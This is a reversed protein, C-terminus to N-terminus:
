VEVSFRFVAVEDYLEGVRLVTSPFNPHNPADPFGQTELCLGAYKEYVVGGRGNLSGDLFNGSYFQLGPQTTFVELTRGSSEEHLKCALTLPNASERLVYNHDYGGTFGLQDFPEYIRSGITAPKRFDMPTEAVQRIEGTPILDKSVPTFSDANIMLQHELIDGSGALNFYSHNTLNVITDKDTTARYEIRLENDDNVLYDVSVKLNGPYNEEGDKSLYSLCVGVSDAARRGEASWVTKDYGKNGGHLHNAGNNQALQHAVGNLSFKGNAIRNAHRGILGGFFRPNRVYEDLTDYGLVVDGTIGNRDPVKISAIAGGFNIISVELNQDNSLTFLTIEAGDPTTGFRKTILNL